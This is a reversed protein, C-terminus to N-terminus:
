ETELTKNMIKFFDKEFEITAKTRLNTNLETYLKLWDREEFKIGIHSKKIKLDLSEYQKLNEYHIVYKTKDWLNPILKEVKDVKISEHALPYDNHLDHLEKPNELDVEVICSINKGIKWNRKM